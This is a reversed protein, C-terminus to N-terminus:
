DITQMSNGAKFSLIIMELIKPNCDRFKLYYLLTDCFGEIITKSSFDGKGNQTMHNVLISLVFKENIYVIEEIDCRLVQIPKRKVFWSCEYAIIKDQNIRDIGHFEKLRVIDTFYDLITHLLIRDNMTIDKEDEFKLSSLFDAYVDHVACVREEIRDVGIVDIIGSYNKFDSKINKM